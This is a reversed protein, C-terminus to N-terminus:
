CIADKAAIPLMCVCPWGAGLRPRSVLAAHWIWLCQWGHRGSKRQCYEALLLFLLLLCRGRQGQRGRFVYGKGIVVQVHLMWEM